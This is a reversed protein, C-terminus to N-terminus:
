DGGGISINLSCGQSVCSIQHSANVPDTSLFNNIAGLVGTAKVLRAGPVLVEVSVNVALGGAEGPLHVLEEIFGKVAMKTLDNHALQTSIDPYVENNIYAFDGSFIGKGWEADLQSRM